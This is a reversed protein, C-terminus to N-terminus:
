IKEVKVEEILLIHSETKLDWTKFGIGGNGLESNLGSSTVVVNGNIRCEVDNNNVKIELELRESPLVYKTEALTTTEGDHNQKIRVVKKGFDCVAYNSDDKFRAVLSITDASSQGIKAKFSYDKFLYSGDLFASSSNSYLSPKLAMISKDISLDGSIKVWGKNYDFNDSFPLEKNHTNKLIDVLDKGSWEPMVTIRKFMKENPDPYNYSAGKNSWSQYFLGAPYISKATKVVYEEVGPYNASVHGFDGFPFAFSTIKINLKGEIETRTDLLEQYIRAKFEEDSELRRQDDLWMKDSMFHGRRGSQDIVILEHSDKAHAQVEWRGTGLMDKIEDLSLYYKSGEGLAQKSIIFMVANYNLAKLAPDTKYYSTKIGDDFTILISKDPLQQEGRMFAYFENLTITQYGAEKLAHMQDEFNAVVVDSKYPNESIGHYNIIPISKAIGDNTPEILNDENYYAIKYELYDLQMKFQNQSPKLSNSYIEPFYYKAIVVVFVLILILVFFIDAKNKM